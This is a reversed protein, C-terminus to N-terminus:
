SELMLSELQTLVEIYNQKNKMTLGNFYIESGSGNIVTSNLSEFILPSKAKSNKDLSIYVIQVQSFDYIEM